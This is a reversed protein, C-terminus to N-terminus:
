DRSVISVSSEGHSPLVGPTFPLDKGLRLLLHETSISCCGRLMVWRLLLSCTEQYPMFVGQNYRSRLQRGSSTGCDVVGDFGADPFGTGLFTGARFTM